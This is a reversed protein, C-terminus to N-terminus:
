FDLAGIWIFYSVVLIAVPNSYSLGKFRLRLSLRASVQMRSETEEKNWEVMTCLSGGWGLPQGQPNLPRNHMQGNILTGNFFTPNMWVEPIFLGGLNVGRLQPVPAIQFLMALRKSVQEQAGGPRTEAMDVFGTLWDYFRTFFSPVTRSPPQKLDFSKPVVVLKPVGSSGRIDLKSPLAWGTELWLNRNCVKLMVRDLKDVDPPLLNIGDLDEKERRRGHDRENGKEKEKRKGKGQESESESENENEISTNTDSVADARRRRARQSYEKNMKNIENIKNMEVDAWGREIKHDLNPAPYYETSVASFATARYSEDETAKLVGNDAVTVFKGGSSRLFFCKNDEERGEGEGEGDGEEEGEGEGRKDKEARKSKSKDIDKNEGRDGPKDYGKNAKNNNSGVPGVLGVRVVILSSGHLWPITETLVLSDDDSTSSSAYTAAKQAEYLAAAEVKDRENDRERKRDYGNGNGSGNDEESDSDSLKRGNWNGTTAVTITIAITIAIAIKTVLCVYYHISRM